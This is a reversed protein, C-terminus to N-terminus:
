NAGAAASWRCTSGEEIEFGDVLLEPALGLYIRDWEVTFQPVGATTPNNSVQLQVSRTSEFLPLDGSIRTWDASTTGFVPNPFSSGGTCDSSDFLQLDIRAWVSASTRYMAGVSVGSHVSGDIPICQDSYLTFFQVGGGAPASTGLVADSTTCSGSDEVLQMSGITNQWDTTGDPLDFEGNGLLNQAVLARGSFLAAALFLVVLQRNM